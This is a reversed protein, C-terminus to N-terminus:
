ESVANLINGAQLVLHLVAHLEECCMLEKTACRLIKIDQKMAEYVVPFEEKLLMSEIRIPYSPLQILLHMFSDALPLKSVDGRYATLKKVEETEPLLKLLERLLEAGFQESNGRRIDDAITQNSRKFQKLFIGVNMARKSDLISVEGKAERFSSRASGGRTGMIKSEDNQGFLEEITQIDIHFQKRGRGQTWLNPRGKM